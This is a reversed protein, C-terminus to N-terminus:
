PVPWAGPPPVALCKCGKELILLWPVATKEGSARQHWFFSTNDLLWPFNKQSPQKSVIQSPQKNEEKQAINLLELMKKKFFSYRFMTYWGQIEIYIQKAPVPKWICSQVWSAKLVRVTARVQTIGDQLLKKISWLLVCRTHLKEPFYQRSRIPTLSYKTHGSSTYKRGWWKLNPKGHAATWINSNM